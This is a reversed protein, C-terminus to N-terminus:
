KLEKKSSNWLKLLKDSGTSPHFVLHYTERLYEEVPYVSRLLDLLSPKQLSLAIHVLPIFHDYLLYMEVQEYMTDIMQQSSPPILEKYDSLKLFFQFIVYIKHHHQHISTPAQQLIQYHITCLHNWRRVNTELIRAHYIHHHRIVDIMYLIHYMQIYKEIMHYEQKKQFANLEFSWQQIPRSPIQLEEYFNIMSQKFQLWYQEIEYDEKKITDM